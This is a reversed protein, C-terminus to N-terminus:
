KWYSPNMTFKKVLGKPLKQYNQGAKYGLFKFGSILVLDPILWPKKQKLLYSATQKVLRMGESESSIKAFIEPHDAQSVALDFNRQFQQFYSYNHSHIVEARAAYAVGYGAQIMQAALIMDENFITKTVFGGLKEYVCRRYAACVNSCFYTKIGLKPLDEKRKVRSNEPYNFGRTYQEIFKCDAAPLQRGYAAGISDDAFSNVLVEIVKNNAPVADQTFFVLLDTEAMAAGMARTKGHDFEEKTIHHVEAQPIGKIWDKKWYKAETNLILIKKIPYTQTKLKEILKQFTGDPKYTPIIVTVTM